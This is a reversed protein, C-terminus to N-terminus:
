NAISTCFLLKIATSKCGLMYRNIGICISHSSLNRISNVDWCTDILEHAIKQRNKPQKQNVDWCTDILETGEFKQIVVMEYNVDWCTDILEDASDNSRRVLVSKCGLM